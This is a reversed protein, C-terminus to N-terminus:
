EYAKIDDLFSTIANKVQDTDKLKCQWILLVGWGLSKLERINKADRKRNKAIKPEWYELKSKPLNGKRCGRHGHWFCGHVFIVKKRSPFVLDPKGPLTKSHLRFRYGLKHVLSRVALEPNTNKGRIRSMIESRRKKDLTDM